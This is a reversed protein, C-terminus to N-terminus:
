QAKCHIEVLLGDLDRKLELYDLMLTTIFSVSIVFLFFSIAILAPRFISFTLTKM